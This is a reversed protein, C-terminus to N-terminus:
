QYRLAEAPDLRSAQRSPYLTALLCVVLSGAVVLLFNSPEVRFPVSAVGDYVMEPLRIWQYRDAAWSLAVGSAAGVVTGVAGIIGGQLVFVTRISRSSAGMTKLIAIDRSKEMVLLVLSAVINLAAVMMILGITVGIALKELGLASFLAQNLQGWDRAFYEAGLTETVASAVAPAEDVDEVRLEIMDVRDKNFLRGAADLTVFGYSSDYERLGLSFVGVVELRWWRPVPGWPSLTAGQVTLVSVTDGVSARLSRSLDDGIVVGGLVGERPESLAAFSGLVMSEAVETVQAELVPDVGKLTVFADVGHATAMGYGLTAPAAAVVGPVAALRALEAERDVFGGGLLKQVYVHAAAGVIRDRIEQQMGTMLALAIILAMVGVTVGLASVASIVSIFAQRRKALLYRTAVYLEFPLTM